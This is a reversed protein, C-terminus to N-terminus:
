RGTMLPVSGSLSRRQNVKTYTLVVRPDGFSVDLGGIRQFPPMPSVSAGGDRELQYIGHRGVALVNSEVIVLSFFPETSHYDDKVPVEYVTRATKDCVEDIRGRQLMHVLGIAVFACDPDAPKPSLATIPDCELPGRCPEEPRSGDIGTVKGSKRDISWLGGGFEGGNFGVLVRQPQPLMSTLPYPSIKAPWYVRTEQRRGATVDILSATTLLTVGTPSSAVAILGDEHAPIDMAATWGRGNWRHLTWVKAGPRKGTIVIPTGNQTRLDLVPDTFSVRWQRDSGEDIRSLTGEDSLIWLHGDAFAVQSIFSSDEGGIAANACHGAGLAFVLLVVGLVSKIDKSKM